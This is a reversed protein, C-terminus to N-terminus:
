RRRRTMTRKEKTMKMSKTSNKGIDEIHVKKRMKIKMIINIKILHEELEEIMMTMTMKMM